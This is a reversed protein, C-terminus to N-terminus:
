KEGAARKEMDAQMKAEMAKVSNKLSALYIRKEDETPAMMTVTASVTSPPMRLIQDVAAKGLGLVVGALIMVVAICEMAKLIKM